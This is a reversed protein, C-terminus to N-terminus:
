GFTPSLSRTAAHSGGNRIITGRDVGRRTTPDFPFILPRPLYPAAPFILPRSDNEESDSRSGRDEARVTLGCDVGTWKEEGVGRRSNQMAIALACAHSDEPV